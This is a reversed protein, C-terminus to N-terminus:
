NRSAARNRDRRQIRTTQRRPVLLPDPDPHNGNVGFGTRRPKVDPAAERPGDEDYNEYAQLHKYLELARFNNYASLWNQPPIKYQYNHNVVGTRVYPELHDECDRLLYYSLLRYPLGFDNLVKSRTYDTNTAAIFQLSLDKIAKPRRINGLSLDHCLSGVRGTFRVHGLNDQLGQFYTLMARRRAHTDYRAEVLNCKVCEKLWRSVAEEALGEEKYIPGLSEFQLYQGEGQPDTFKVVIPQKLYDPTGNIYSPVFIRGYGPALIWTTSDCTYFPFRLLFPISTVGFGHTKVLPCGEEDTLITYVQEFWTKQDNDATDDAPSIGIYTEGEKIMRKLWKFDEGQHFVPIPKLGARKMKTQNEHSQRASDEVESPSRAIGLRGPIVDLNVYSWLLHKNRQVFAIYADLDITEEKTWASFAGSDLMVKTPLQSLATMAYAPDQKRTRPRENM